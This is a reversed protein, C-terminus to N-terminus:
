DSSQSPSKPDSFAVGSAFVGKSPEYQTMALVLQQDTVNGWYAIPLEGDPTKLFGLLADAETRTFRRAPSANHFKYYEEVTVNVRQGNSMEGVRGNIEIWAHQIRGNIGDVMGHVLRIEANALLLGGALLSDLDKMFELTIFYCNGLSWDRDVKDLPLEM